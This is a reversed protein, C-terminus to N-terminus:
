PAVDGAEGRRAVATRIAGALVDAPQAGSLAFRRDLIFFPVGSVGAEHAEAELQRVEEIGTDGALYRTAGKRPLGAAEAADILVAADGIDRGQVFYDDFLRESLATAVGAEEALLLLRHARLTSPARAIRELHMPLEDEAAAAQVRGYIQGVRGAGFKATLYAQRDMGEEPMQPNLEFPLWHVDLEIEGALAQGAQKLRSWGIYCWPCVVDSVIDIRFQEAM